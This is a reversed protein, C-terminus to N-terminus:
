RNERGGMVFVAGGGVLAFVILGVVVAIVLRSSNSEEVVLEVGPEATAAAETMAAESTAPESSAVDNASETEGPVSGESASPSSAGTAVTDESADTDEGADTSTESAAVVDLEIEQYGLAPFIVDAEAIAAKGGPGRSLLQAVETKVEPSGPDFRLKAYAQKEMEADWVHPVMGGQMWSRDLGCECDQGVVALSREFKREDDGPFRLVPGLRRGRGFLIAVQTVSEDELDVGLSWLLIREQAAQERTMVFLHPPHDIPKPLDSLIDNVRPIFDRALQATSKNPAKAGGEVVIMVSHIDLVLKFIDERTASTIVASVLESVAGAQLPEDAASLRLARNDPSVLVAAPFTTIDAMEVYATAAHEPHKDLDILESVVNSDALQDNANELAERLATTTEGGTTDGKAFVFLRYPSDGLDVFAVDRVNYQCAEAPRATVMGVAMIVLGGTLFFLLTQRM